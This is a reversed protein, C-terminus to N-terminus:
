GYKWMGPRGYVKIDRKIILMIQKIPANKFDKVNKRKGHINTDWRMLDLKHRKIELQCKWKTEKCNM